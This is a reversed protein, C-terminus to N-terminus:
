PAVTVPNKGRLTLVLPGSSFQIISKLIGAGVTAMGPTNGFVLSTGNVATIVDGVLLGAKQAAGGPMITGVEVGEASDKIGIGITRGIAPAPPDSAVAPPTVLPVSGQQPPAAPVSTRSFGEPLYECKTSDGFKESLGVSSIAMGCNLLDIKNQWLDPARVQNTCKAQTMLQMLLNQAQLQNSIEAVYLASQPIKTDAANLAQLLYIERTAADFKAALATCSNESQAAAPTVALSAVGVLIVVVSSASLSKHM